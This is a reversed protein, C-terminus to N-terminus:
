HNRQDPTRPKDQGVTEFAAQVAECHRRVAHLSVRLEDAVERMPRGHLICAVAVKRRAAPWRDKHRLVFLYEPSLVRRALRRIRRRVARPDAGSLRGVEVATKGDSYVARILARDDPPLDEALRALSETVGRRFLFRRDTLLDPEARHPPSGSIQFGYM